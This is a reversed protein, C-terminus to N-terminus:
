LGPTKDARCMKMSDSKNGAEGYIYIYIYIHTFIFLFFLIIKKMNNSKIEKNVEMNIYIHIYIYIYIYEPHLMGLFMMQVAVYRWDRDLYPSCSM